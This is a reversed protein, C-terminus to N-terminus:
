LLHLFITEEFIFFSLLFPLDFSVLSKMAVGDRYRQKGHSMAGYVAECLYLSPTCLRKNVEGGRKMFHKKVSTVVPDSLVTTNLGLLNFFEEFQLIHLIPIADFACPVLCPHCATCHLTITPPLYIRVHVMRPKCM